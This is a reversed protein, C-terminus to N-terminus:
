SRFLVNEQRFQYVALVVGLGAYVISSALMVGFPAVGAAGLLLDRLIVIVGFVPIAYTLLPLSVDPLFVISTAPIIVVFQLPVIYNQAEKFSRAFICVAMELAGFMLAVPLVALLVLLATQPSISFAVAPGNPGWRPPALVFAALMSGIALLLAGLSTTMVALLKGLVIQTRGAPTTLLPELTLREKEGATVDIATYMGGVLGWLVIFLPLLMGLFAGGMQQPSAINQAEVEFPTLLSADVGRAALRRAVISQAYTKLLAEVRAAPLSQTIRSQDALLTIVPAAQEQGLTADFGSPISLGVSAKGERVVGGPDGTEIVEVAASARLFGILGPAHEGGAVAVKVVATEQTKRQEAVLWQPLIILLPMVLVPALIMAWLTRRDRLTDLMEKFWVILIPNM